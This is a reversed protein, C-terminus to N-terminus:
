HCMNKKYNEREYNSLKMHFIIARTKGEFINRSAAVNRFYHMKTCCKLKNQSGWGIINMSKLETRGVSIVFLLLIQLKDKPYDLNQMAKIFQPLVQPEKFLPCL